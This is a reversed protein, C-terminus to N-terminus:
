IFINSISLIKMYRKIRFELLIPTNIRNGLPLFTQNVLIINNNDFKIFGGINRLFNNKTHVIIALQISKRKIKKYRKISKITVLIPDLIQSGIKKSHFTHICKAKNAGSNDIVNLKTQKFIM